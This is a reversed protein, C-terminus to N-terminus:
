ATAQLEKRIVKQLLVSLDNFRQITRQIGEDTDFRKGDRLLHLSTTLASLDQSTSM